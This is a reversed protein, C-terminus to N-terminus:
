RTSPAPWTFGIHGASLQDCDATVALETPIALGEVLCFALGAGNDAYRFGDPCSPTTGAAPTFDWGFYGM